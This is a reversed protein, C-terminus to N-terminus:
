FSQVIAQCYPTLPEPSCPSGWIVTGISVEWRGFFLEPCMGPLALGWWGGRVGLFRAKLAKGTVLLPGWSPRGLVLCPPRSAPGVATVVCSLSAGGRLQRPGQGRAAEAEQGSSTVVLNQGAVGQM